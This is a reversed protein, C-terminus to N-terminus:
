LEPRPKGNPSYADPPTVIKDSLDLPGTLLPDNTSSMWSELRKSLSEKTSAYEPDDALNHAEMPDLVLDYLEEAHPPHNQWDHDYLYGKSLGNDCNALTIHDRPEFHRIYKWRETRISRMPEYAAHVNVEGFLEERWEAHTDAALTQLPSGELRDPQPLELATCITPFLDLHSVMSDTVKGGEFGGPGRVMLMVRLGHDTLRCKMGPFAIGHDTTVIVLTNDSLGNSEIADLVRGALHDFTKVSAMYNAFDKRTEENDPLHAPPRVYAPNPLDFMKPFDGEDGMRHPAFYGVDLLFPEDHERNLFDIAAETTGEDGKPYRRQTPDDERMVENLVEDYGINDVSAYPDHAIHQIGSLATHWGHDKLFAVFTDDYNKLHFGRHALGLMGNVHASQGTLLCARSPSCTPNVCFSQRFLMGSEAFRQLNPTEVSHGYPQVHVGADHAHLYVINYKKM